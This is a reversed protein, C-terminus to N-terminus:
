KWLSISSSDNVVFLDQHPTQIVNSLQGAVSDTKRLTNGHLTRITGDNGTLYLANASAFLSYRTDSTKEFLKTFNSHNDVKWVDTLGTVDNVAQVYLNGSFEVFSELRGSYNTANYPGVLKTWTKGNSSTYITGTKCPAIGCDDHFAYLTDIGAVLTTFGISDIKHWHTGTTSRWINGNSDSAFLSNHYNTLSYFESPASLQKVTTLKIPQRMKMRVIQTPASNSGSQALAYVHHKLTVTQTGSFGTVNNSNISVSSWNGTTPDSSQYFKGHSYVVGGNTQPFYMFDSSFQRSVKTAAFTTFPMAIMFAISIAVSTLRYNKRM